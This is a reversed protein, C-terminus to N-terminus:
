APCSYGCTSFYLHIVLRWKERSYGSGLSNNKEIDGIIVNWLLFMTMEATFGNIAWRNQFKIREEDTVLCRKLRAIQEFEIHNFLIEWAVNWVKANLSNVEYNNPRKLEIWPYYKKQMIGVYQGSILNIPYGAITKSGIINFNIDSWFAPYWPYLNNM